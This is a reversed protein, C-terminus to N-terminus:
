LTGSSSQIKRKRYGRVLMWFSMFIEIEFSRPIFYHLTLILIPMLTVTHYVQILLHFHIAKDSTFRWALTSQFFIETLYWSFNQLVTRSTALGIASSTRLIISFQKSRKIQIALNSWGNQILLNPCRYTTDVRTLHYLPVIVVFLTDDHLFWLMPM